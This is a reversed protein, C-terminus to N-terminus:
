SPEREWEVYLLYAEFDHPAAALLVRKHLNFIFRLDNENEIMPMVREISDSLCKLYRVGLSIDTKMTERCIYYLDEYAKTGGPNNRVELLIKDLLDKM